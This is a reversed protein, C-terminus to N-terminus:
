QKGLLVYSLALSDIHGNEAAPCGGTTSILLRLIYDDGPTAVFPVSSPDYASPGSRLVGELSLSRTDFSNASRSRTFGGSALTTTNSGNRLQIDITASNASSLNVSYAVDSSAYVLSERNVSFPISAIERNNSCTPVFESFEYVSNGTGAFSSSDMGDLTDSNAVTGTKDLFETSDRGDLTDADGASTASDANAANAANTANDARDAHLSDAVKGNIGDKWALQTERASCTQGGEANIIRLAGSRNDRCATITGDASPIAAVAAGSCAILLALLAVGM